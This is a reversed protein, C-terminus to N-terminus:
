LPAHGLKTRMVAWLHSPVRSSLDETDGLGEPIVGPTGLAVRCLGWLPPVTTFVTVLSKFSSEDEPLEFPHILRDPSSEFRDEEPSLHYSKVQQPPISLQLSSVTIYGGQHSGHGPHFFSTNKCWSLINIGPHIPVMLKYSFPPPPQHSSATTLTNPPPAKSSRDLAIFELNRVRDTLIVM